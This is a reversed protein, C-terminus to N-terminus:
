DHTEKKFQEFWSKNQNKPDGTEPLGYQVELGALELTRKAKIYGNRGADDGDFMIIIRPKAKILRVLLDSCVKTGLCAIAQYEPLYKQAKIASFFDETLVITNKTIDNTLASGFSVTNNYVYWKVPSKQTIDRGILGDPLRICLRKNQTDYMITHNESLLMLSVGKSNLLKVIERIPVKASSIPVLEPIRPESPPEEDDKLRVLDKYKIGFDKCHFCYATYKDPLNRIVLNPRREAGHYIRKSGNIPLRKAEELWQYDPLM